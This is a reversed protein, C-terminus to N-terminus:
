MAHFEILMVGGDGNIARLASNNIFHSHTISITAHRANM